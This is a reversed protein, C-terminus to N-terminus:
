RLQVLLVLRAARWHDTRPGSLLVDASFGEHVCGRDARPSASLGGGASGGLARHHQLRRQLAALGAGPHFLIPFTRNAVERWDLDTIDFLKENTMEGFIVRRYLSLAYVASFIVRNGALLAAWTSAQYVGTMTIEGVFGSTGPSGVNGMTFLMFVAPLYQPMRNVLGGYFAIQPCATMSASASLARRLDGHSLVDASRAGQEGPIVADSFIGM